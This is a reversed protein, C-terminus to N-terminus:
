ASHEPANPSVVPVKICIKHIIKTNPEDMLRIFPMLSTTLQSSPLDRWSLELRVIRVKPTSVGHCGYNTM